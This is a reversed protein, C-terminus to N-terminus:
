KRRAWKGMLECAVAVMDRDFREIYQQHHKFRPESKLMALIEEQSLESSLLEALADQFEALSADDPPLESTSVKESPLGSPQIAESQCEDISCDASGSEQAADAAYTADLIEAITEFDERFEAQSEEEMMTWGLREFIVFAVNPCLKLALAALNFVDQPVSDDHTDRRVAVRARSESETWTGGSIHIERVKSLPYSKLLDLASVNFNALQCYINHVDLLLFGDVESILQDIFEGQRKVDDLCFAFALNELGVPCQTADAYRKMMEKGLRLSEKTMPVALPAGHAIPGAESFGFHESAHIYNRAKFEERAKALWEEQRPSFRASLPSLNVGHGILANSRSFKDVIDVCWPPIDGAIWSFDFSWEVVQVQNREFMIQSAHRFDDSPM